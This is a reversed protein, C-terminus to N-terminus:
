ARSAEKDRCNLNVNAHPLKGVTRMALGERGAAHRHHLLPVAPGSTGTCCCCNKFGASGPDAEGITQPAEQIARERGMGELFQAPAGPSDDIVM